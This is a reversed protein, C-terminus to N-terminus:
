EQCTGPFMSSLVSVLMCLVVETCSTRINLPYLYVPNVSTFAIKSSYTIHLSLLSLWVGCLSAESLLSAKSSDTHLCSPHIKKKLAIFPFELLLFPMCFSTIFYFCYKLLLFLHIFFLIYFPVAPLHLQVSSFLHSWLCTSTDLNFVLWPAISSIWPLFYCSKMNMVTISQKLYIIMIKERNSNTFCLFADKCPLTLWPFRHHWEFILGSRSAWWCEPRQLKLVWTKRQQRGCEWSKM